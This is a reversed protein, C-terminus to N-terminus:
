EKGRTLEEMKAELIRWLKEIKIGMFVLIITISTREIKPFEGEFHPRFLSIFLIAASFGVLIGIFWCFFQTSRIGTKKLILLIKAKM